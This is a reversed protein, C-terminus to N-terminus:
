NLGQGGFGGLSFGQRKQPQSKISGDVMEKSIGDPLKGGNMYDYLVLKYVNLLIYSLLLGFVLMMVGIILVIFGPVISGFMIIAVGAIALLLGLVIFILSYLDSYLIGGFTKGFNKFVFSTSEKLTSIPGLKKDLIVPVAFMTALSMAISAGLGFIMSGISGLRQEIARIVMSVIAEFVAWEFILLTYSATESLAGSIGIPTGKTYSRFAILMAVLIYTSTFYVVLYYLFLLIISSYSNTMGFLFMSLFIAITEAMIVIGAFVPFLLLRRDGMVLKRVAASLKWGAKVNGFM